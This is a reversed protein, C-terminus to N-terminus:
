YRTVLFTVVVVRHQQPDKEDEKKQTQASMSTKIPTAYHQVTTDDACQFGSSGDQLCDQMDNAFPQLSCTWSNLGIFELHPTQLVLNSIM